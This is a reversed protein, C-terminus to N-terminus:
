NVRIAGCSQRQMFKVHLDRMLSWECRTHVCRSVGILWHCSNPPPFIQKVLWNCIPLNWSVQKAVTVIKATGNPSATEHTQATTETHLLMSEHTESLPQPCMADLGWPLQLNRWLLMTIERGLVELVQPLDPSSRVSGDVIHHVFGTSLDHSDLHNM